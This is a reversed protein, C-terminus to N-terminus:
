ILGREQMRRMKGDIIFSGLDPNPNMNLKYRTVKEPKNGEGVVFRTKDSIMGHFGRKAHIEKKRMRNTVPDFEDESRTLWTPIYNRSRTRNEEEEDEEYVFSM